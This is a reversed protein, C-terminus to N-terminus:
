EYISSTERGLRRKRRQGNNKKTHDDEPRMKIKLSRKVEVVKNIQEIMRPKLPNFNESISRRESGLGAKGTRQIKPKIQITTRPKTTDAEHFEDQDYKGM